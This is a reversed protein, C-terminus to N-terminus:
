QKGIKSREWEHYVRGVTSMAQLYRTNQDLVGGDQEMYGNRYHAYLMVYYQAEPTVYKRLCGAFPVQEGDIELEYETADACESPICRKKCTKGIEYYVATAAM